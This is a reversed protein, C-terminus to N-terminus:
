VSMYTYIHIHIHIHTHIVVYTTYIYIYIYARVLVVVVRVKSQRIYTTICLKSTKNKNAQGFHHVFLRTTNQPAIVSIHSRWLSTRVFHTSSLILHLFHQEFAIIITNLIQSNQRVSEIKQIFMCKIRSMKLRFNFVKMYTVVSNSILTWYFIMNMEVKCSSSVKTNCIRGIHHIVRIFNIQDNPEWENIWSLVYIGHM